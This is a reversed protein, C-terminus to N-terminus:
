VMKNINKVLNSVEKKAKENMSELDKIDQEFHDKFKEDNKPEENYKDDIYKNM